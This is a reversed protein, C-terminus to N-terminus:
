KRRAYGPRHQIPSQGSIFVSAIFRIFRALNNSRYVEKNMRTQRMGYYLLNKEM